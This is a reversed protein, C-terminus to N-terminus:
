PTWEEGRLMEALEMLDGLRVTILWEQGKHRTSVRRTAVMPLHDPQKDEVAQKVAAHIRPAAGYKCEIHLRPLSECTVDSTGETGCYQQTRRTIFGTEAAFAHAFENEGVKGKTNSNIAMM